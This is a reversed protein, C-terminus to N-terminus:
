YIESIVDNKDCFHNYFSRTALGCNSIIDGVTISSLGRENMLELTSEMILERSTRKGKMIKRWGGFICLKEYLHM